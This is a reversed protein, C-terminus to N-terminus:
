KSLLVHVYMGADSAFLGFALTFWIIALSYVKFISQLGQGRKLFLNKYLKYPCYPKSKDIDPKLVKPM